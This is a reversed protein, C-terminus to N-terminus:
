NTSGSRVAALIERASTAVGKGADLSRIGAELDDVLAARKQAQEDRHRLTRLAATLLEERSRFAGSALQSTVYQEVDPSLAINTM